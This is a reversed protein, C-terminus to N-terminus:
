SDGVPRFRETKREDSEKSSVGVSGSSEPGQRKAKRAVAIADFLYSFIVLLPLVILISLTNM